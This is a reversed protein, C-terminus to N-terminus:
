SPEDEEGKIPNGSEDVEWPLINHKREALMENLWGDDIYTKPGSQQMEEIIWGESVYILKFQGGCRCKAGRAKEWRSEIVPFGVEQTDLNRCGSCRWGTTYKYEKPM